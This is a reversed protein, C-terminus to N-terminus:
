SRPSGPAPAARAIHDCYSNRGRRSGRRIGGATLQDFATLVTTRSIGLDGSLTRSSPLRQGPRLAGGLINDRLHAYLQQFLPIDSSHDLAIALMTGVALKSVSPAGM